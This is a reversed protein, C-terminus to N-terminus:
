PDVVRVRVLRFLLTLDYGDAFRPDTACGVGDVVAAPGADARGAGDVCRDVIGDRDTDAFREFGDGDADVDPQFGAGVAVDLLSRPDAPEGGPLAGVGERAMQAVRWVARARADEVRVTPSPDAPHVGYMRGSIHWWVPLVRLEDMELRGIPLRGDLSRGEIVLPGTVRPEPPSTGPVYSIPQLIVPGTEVCLDTADTATAVLLSATGLAEGERRAVHVVVMRASACGVSALQRQILAPVPEDSALLEGIRTSPDPHLRVVVFHEDVPYGARGSEGCAALALTFLAVISRSRM